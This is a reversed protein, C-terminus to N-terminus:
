FSCHMIERPSKEGKPAQQWAASLRGYEDVCPTTGGLHLASDTEMAENGKLGTTFAKILENLLHFADLIYKYLRFDKSFSLFFFLSGSHQARLDGSTRRCRGLSRSVRAWGGAVVQKKTTRRRKLGQREREGREKMSFIFLFPLGTRKGM